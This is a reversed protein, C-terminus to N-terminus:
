QTCLSSVSQQTLIKKAIKIFLEVFSFMM